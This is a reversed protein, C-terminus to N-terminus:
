KTDDNEGSTMVNIFKLYLIPLIAILGLFWVYEKETPFVYWCTIVVILYITGCYEKFMKKMQKIGDWQLDFEFEIGMYLILCVMAPVVVFGVLAISSTDYLYIIFLIGIVYLISKRIMEIIKM